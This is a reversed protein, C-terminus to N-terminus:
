QRLSAVERRVGAEDQYKKLLNILKEIDMNGKKYEDIAGVVAKGVSRWKRRRIDAYLAGLGGLLGPLIPLFLGGISGAADAPSGEPKYAGDPQVGFFGDLAACGAIGILTVALVMIVINRM